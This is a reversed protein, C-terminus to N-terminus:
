CILEEMNPDNLKVFIREDTVLIRKILTKASISKEERTMKNWYPAIEHIVSITHNLSVSKVEEAKKQEILKSLRNKEEELKKVQPAILHLIDQGSDSSMHVILNNIRTITKSLEGELREIEGKLSAKNNSNIRAEVRKWYLKDNAISLIVGIVRQEIEEEKISRRCGRNPTEKNQDNCRYYRYLRGKKMDKNSYYYMKRGCECHCLGDFIQTDVRSSPKRRNDKKLEHVKWFIEESIIAEHEGKAIIWQSPDKRRKFTPSVVETKSYGINGTYIPNNLIIGILSRKIHYKDALNIMSLGKLYDDYLAKVIPAETKNIYLKKNVKDYGFPRNGGLWAGKEALSYKSDMVRETIMEREFNAFDVLINRLLRGVPTSTDLNQTVSVLSINLRDLKEALEHFDKVSRTLRDLKYVIIADFKKQEADKMMQQFAPRDTNKGSLGADEYQHILEWGQIVCYAKLKEEQVELSAGDNAQHATSVRSYIVAKM